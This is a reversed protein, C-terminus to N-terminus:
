WVLKVPYQALRADASLLAAGQVNAQAILLRDFPDKHVSPLNEVALVDDLSVPFIQIGNGQQRALITPLPAALIAKGLQQKIVLEWISVVSLLLTNAPDQIFALAAASLQAPSSDWWVFAHTDLIGKM